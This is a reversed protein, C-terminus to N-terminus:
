SRERNVDKSNAPSWQHAATLLTEEFKADPSVIGDKIALEILQTAGLGSLYVLAGRRETDSASRIKELYEIQKASIERAGAQGCISLALFGAFVYKALTISKM